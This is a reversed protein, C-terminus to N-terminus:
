YRAVIPGGLRYNLGVLVTQLNQKESYLYPDSFGCAAGCSYTFGLTKSGLGIYNYEAFLSWNQNLRYEGGGGITWGTRTASAGGTYPLFVTGSPDVDSYNTHVWAVGGKVYLL